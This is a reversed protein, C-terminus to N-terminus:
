FRALIWDTMTQLARPSITEEITAYENPSGTEATQFLHNLGALEVIEVDDNGGESLALRIAELNEKPSVQTDKEGNIALVPQVLARLAPLPDYTLFYRFWPSTVQALQAQIQADRANEPVDALAPELAERIRTRLVGPDNEEKVAAFMAAQAARNAAAAEDTGGSAKIILDSQRYLIEEGTLGPGAMLVVFRVATSRNAVIPAVLGGESHGILGIPGVDSRRDLFEVASVVDDAFDVSTATAFSGTSEGVGRDDLRLVAVGHRTLHDALVLFLRHGMLAEDRDQPGSGTILVVVPAPADADPLTLSGALTVGAASSAIRVEEIDYPFPAHPEQPRHMVVGGEEGRELTLDFSMGSQSWSGRLTDNSLDGEYGGGIANVRLTVHGDEFTVTDVPIGTAGQAPSDLTASLSGDTETIHFILPLTAGPVELSGHWDGVIDM